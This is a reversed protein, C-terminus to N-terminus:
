PDIEIREVSRKPRADVILRLIEPRAYHGATDVLVKARGIEDLDIEAVVLREDSGTHPGALTAGNPGYVASFGGGTGVVHQPGLEAEMIALNQGSVPNEALIVFCQGTLAHARMLTDVLTDFATGRGHTTAFTPWSACHIELGQAILAQRALNMMHEYCILGGVIGSAMPFVSLTSGDGQGWLMREAFTPQLKRHRGLMQGESSIFVQSNYITGGQRESIGLVVEVRAARAAELVPRLQDTELDVSEAVYRRHIDHQDGPPYLNIWYPFGPCFVEPFCLLQVNQRGAEAIIECAKALCANRDLLISSAHAAGVRRIRSV